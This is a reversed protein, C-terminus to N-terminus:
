VVFWMDGDQGGSPSSTFIIHDINDARGLAVDSATANSPTASVLTWSSKNDYFLKGTDTAPYWLGSTGASPRNAETGAQLESVSNTAVSTSATPNFISM